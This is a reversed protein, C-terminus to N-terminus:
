RRRHLSRVGAVFMEVGFSFYADVDDCDTLAEAAEVLRPYRQLPLGKLAARKAVLVADRESAAVQTESGPHESVLMIATQLATRATDAAEAVTFGVGRLLDLTYEAVVRGEDCSLVRPMSLRAAAPHQRLAAVLALVMERLQRDWPGAFPLGASLGDFFSDGMADLLEDKNKVHWYLAMPTVDFDQAIRRITVADLGEDDAIALAREVIAARSLDSKARRTMSKTM